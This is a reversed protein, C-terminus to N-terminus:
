LNVQQNGTSQSFMGHRIKNKYWDELSSLSELEEKSLYNKYIGISNAKAKEPNFYKKRFKHKGNINGLFHEIRTEYVDYDNVLGEFDVFLIQEPEIVKLWNDIKGLRMEFADKIFKFRGKRDNGYISTINFQGYSLQSCRFPSFDINRRVMEALQDKPDRYVCILKFPRFVRTWIAPDSWPHLPQNFLTYDYYSPFISGVRQIWENSRQIKDDFSIDSKLSRNLEQLFVVQFLETLSNKYARLKKNQFDKEWIYKLSKDPILKWISSKYIMEWRSNTFRIKKDIVDPYNISSEYSLQDSVFGPRRYDNFEYRLVNINEYEYLMDILASSGSALTGMVLLNTREKIV